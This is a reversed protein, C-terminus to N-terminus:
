EEVAFDELRVGPVALKKRLWSAMRGRGSWTRNPREPDQYKPKVEARGDPPVEGGLPPFRLRGQDHLSTWGGGGIVLYDVLQRGAAAGAHLVRRAVEVDRRSPKPPRSGRHHFLILGQARLLMAPLVFMSPDVRHKGLYGLYPLSWALPSALDDTFVAGLVRSTLYQSRVEANVLEVVDEPRLLHRDEDPPLLTLRYRRLDEPSLGPPDDDIM